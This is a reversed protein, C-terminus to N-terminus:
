DTQARLFEQAARHAAELDDGFTPAEMASSPTTIAQVGQSSAASAKTAMLRNVREAVIDEYRAQAELLNGRHFAALEYVADLDTAQYHPNAERILSEQRNMEAQVAAEYEQQRLAAERAEFSSQFTALQNKVADLEAKMASEPDDEWSPVEQAQAESVIQRTAEAQAQAPTLGMQTLTDSLRAHFDLAGQPDQLTTFLQLAAQAESPDVEGLSEYSKRIESLQQTKRTYDAQMSEYWPRMEDPIAKPDLKTFTDAEATADEQAEEEPTVPEAQNSEPAVETRRTDGYQERGTDASIANFLEAAAADDSITESIVESL